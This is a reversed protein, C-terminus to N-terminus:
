LGVARARQQRNMVLLQEIRGRAVAMLAAPDAREVLEFVIKGSRLLEDHLRVLDDRTFFPDLGALGVHGALLFIGARAVAQALLAPRQGPDLDVLIIQEVAGIALLRQGVQEFAAALKHHLM